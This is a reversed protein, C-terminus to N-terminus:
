MVQEGDALRAADGRGRGPAREGHRLDGRAGEATRRSRAGVPPQRDAGRGPQEVRAAPGARRADRRVARPARLGGRGGAAPALAAVRGPRRARHRRRHWRHPDDVVDARRGRGRPGGGDRRRRRRRGHHRLAALRRHHRRRPGRRPRGRHDHPRADAAPQPQRRRRRGHRRVRHAPEARGARGARGDHDQRRRQERYEVGQQLGVRRRGRQGGRRAHEGPRPCWRGARRRRHLGRRDHDGLHAPHGRRLHLDGVDDRARRPRRRRPGLRRLPRARRRLRPDEARQGVAAGRLRDGGALPRRRRGGDHGGRRGLPGPRLLRRRHGPRAGHGPRQLLRPQHGGPDARRLPVHGAGPGAAGLRDAEGRRHRLGRGGAPRRARGGLQRRGAGGADQLARGRAGAPLHGAAPVRKHHHGARGAARVRHGPRRAAGPREDAPAPRVGLGQRGPDHRRRRHARLRRGRREAGGRDGLRRHLGPQLVAPGPHPRHDLPLLLVRRSAARRAAPRHRGEAGPQDLLVHLPRAGDDRRPGCE